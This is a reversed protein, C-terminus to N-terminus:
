LKIIIPDSSYYNTQNDVYKHPLVSDVWIPEVAELLSFTPHPTGWPEARLGSSKKFITHEHCTDLGRM